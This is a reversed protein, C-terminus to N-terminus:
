TLFWCEMQRGFNNSVCLKEPDFIVTWGKMKFKGKHVNGKSPILPFIERSDQFLIGCVCLQLYHVTTTKCWRFRLNVRYGLNNEQLPNTFKLSCWNQVHYLDTEQMVLMPIHLIIGALLPPHGPVDSSKHNQLIAYRM